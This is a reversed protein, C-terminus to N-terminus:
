KGRLWERAQEIDDEDQDPDDLMITFAARARRLAGPRDKGLEYDCIAQFLHVIALDGEDAGPVAGLTRALRALVGEARAWDEQEVLVSLLMVDTAIAHFHDDPLERAIARAREASTRAEDWRGAQSLAETLGALSTLLQPSEGVALALAETGERYSAVADELNGLALQAAGVEQLLIAANYSGSGYLERMRDLSATLRELRAMPNKTANARAVELYAANVDGALKSRIQSIREWTKRAQQEDIAELSVAMVGLADAVTPHEKGYLEERLRVSERAARLSSQWDGRENQLLMAYDVLVGARVVRDYPAEDAGDGLLRLAGEILELARAGDGRVDYYTAVRVQIRIADNRAFSGSQVLALAHSAHGDSRGADHRALGEAVALEALLVAQSLSDDAAAAALLAQQYAGVAADFEGLALDADGSLQRARALLEPVVPEELSAVTEDVVQKGRDPRGAALFLAADELARGAETDEIENAAGAARRCSQPTPLAALVDIGRLALAAEDGLLGLVHDFRRMRRALCRLQQETQAVSQESRAAARCVDIRTARWRNAYDAAAAPITERAASGPAGFLREKLGPWVQEVEDGVTDCPQPPSRQAVGLAVAGAAVVAAAVAGGVVRRTAGGGLERDLTQAVVAMSAPRQRPLAKLGDQLLRRVRRSPGPACSVPQQDEIVRLLSARDAAAFPRRGYLSEFLTACFSFVDSLPDAPAGRLQEPAAYAPTGVFAGTETITATDAALRAAPVDATGAPDRDERDGRALGFDILKVGGDRGVVLNSPKVDRHVLGLEHVAALGRAAGRFAALVASRSRPAQDIWEHLPAGEVLEMAIYVAGEHLGAEYVRVVNPHDVRALARAERIMRRPVEPHLMSAFPRVIKLAVPRELVPDRAHYVIGSGGRAFPKGVIFRGVADGECLETGAGARSGHSDETGALALLLSRCSSCGDLHDVISDAEDGTLAGDVFQALLNEDPCARVSV